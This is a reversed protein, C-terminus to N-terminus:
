ASVATSNLHKEPGNEQKGDKAGKIDDICSGVMDGRNELIRVREEAGIIRKRLLDREATLRKNAILLIGREAKLKDLVGNYESDKDVLLSRLRTAELM